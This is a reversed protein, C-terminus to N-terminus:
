MIMGFGLSTKEGLGGEYAIQMLSEPLSLSFAFEYGRVFTQAPTGAKIKILKPKIKSLVDFKCFTEGQYIEGNLAEYRALLGKLLAEPYSPAEPSLYQTNGNEVRQTICIPSLTQFTITEKYELPPMIEIDRVAFEVKSLQDGVQFVQEKFVGEIFKRTSKQPLFSLFWTVTDCKLLLRQHEKDIGYNPVILHSFSFLKFNKSGHDSQFGNNHLWEAYNRDAYSLIRYVAASLEYQYNIPLKRGFQSANVELTIKFRMDNTEWKINITNPLLYIRKEIKM